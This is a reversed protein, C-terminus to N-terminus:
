ALRGRIGPAANESRPRRRELPWVGGSAPRPALRCCHDAVITIGVARGDLSAMAAARKRNSPQVKRCGRAPWSVPTGQRVEVQGTAVAPGGLRRILFAATGRRGGVQGWEPTYRIDAGTRRGAARRQIGPSEWFRWWRLFRQKRKRELGPKSGMRGWHARIGAMQWRAPM